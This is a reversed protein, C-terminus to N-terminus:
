LEDDERKWVFKNDTLIFFLFLSLPNYYYMYCKGKAVYYVIAAIIDIPCLVAYFLFALVYLLM